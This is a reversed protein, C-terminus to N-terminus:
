SPLRALAAADREYVGACAVGEIRAQMLVGGVCADRDMGPGVM